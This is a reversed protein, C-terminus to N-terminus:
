QGGVTPPYDTVLMHRQLRGKGGASDVAVLEYDVLELLHTRLRTQTWGSYERLERRTFTPIVGTEGDSRRAALMRKIIELLAKSPMSMEDLSRHLLDDVLKGATQLDVADVEAYEIANGNVDKVKIEKAMQRLFAVAAVINLALPQNRRAQLRDDGFKLDSAHLNVIRLPKLLRQFNRHLRRAHEAEVDGALGDLGWKSRQAELIRRTQEKSEDIGLVVFRSRTEADVNPNTSTSFVSVPGDVKNRMTTMRGTKADRVAVEAILSDSSILNRVAYSADDAGTDEEVALVKNKLSSAEKYFLAKASVSTMKVLDEPPCLSLTADQLASKGAGSSSLVLVSLPETMKRSTMALYCILKNSEEGVLGIKTFDALIREILDPSQGLEIAEKTESESMVATTPENGTDDKVEARMEECQRLLKEIDATIDDPREGFTVCVDQILQRRAKANYLDITDVHLRGSKEMRITAKLSRQGREVGLLQYSRLGSTLAHGAIAKVAVTPTAPRAPPMPTRTVAKAHNVADAVFSRLGDAGLELFLSNLARRDPLKFVSVQSWRSLEKVFDACERNTMVTVKRVGSENLLDLLEDNVEMDVIGIANRIGAMELSLVDLVGDVIIIEAHSKVTRVNFIGHHANALRRETGDKISVGVIDIITGDIDSIPAVVRSIHTEKGEGDLVGIAKLQETMRSNRPLAKLLSGDSYGIRFRAWVNADTIGHTELYKRGADIKAFNKEHFAVVKELLQSCSNM